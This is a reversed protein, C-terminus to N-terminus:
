EQPCARVTLGDDHREGLEAVHASSAMGGALQTAETPRHRVHRVWRRRAWRDRQSVAGQKSGILRRMQECDLRTPDVLCHARPSEGAQAYSAVDAEGTGHEFAPERLLGFGLGRSVPQWGALVCAHPPSRVQTKLSVSTRGHCRGALGASCTVGLLPLRFQEPRHQIDPDAVIRSPSSFPTSRCSARAGM